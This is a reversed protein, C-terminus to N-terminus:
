GANPSTLATLPPRAAKRNRTRNNRNKSVGHKRRHRQDNLLIGITRGVDTYGTVHTDRIRGEPTPPTPPPNTLDSILCNLQAPLQLGCAYAHLNGIDSDDGMFREMVSEGRGSTVACDIQRDSM